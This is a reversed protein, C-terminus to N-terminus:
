WWSELVCLPIIFSSRTENAKLESAQHIRQAKTDQHHFSLNRRIGLSGRM